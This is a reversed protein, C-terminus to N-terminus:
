DNSDVNTEGQKIVLDIIFLWDGLVYVSHRKTAVRGSKLYYEKTM